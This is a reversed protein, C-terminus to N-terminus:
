LPDVPEQQVAEIGAQLRPNRAVIRLLRTNQADFEARSRSIFNHSEHLSTRLGDRVGSAIFQQTSVPATGLLLAIPFFSLLFIRTSFRM